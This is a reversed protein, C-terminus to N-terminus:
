VEPRREGHPRGRPPEEGDSGFLHDAPRVTLRHGLVQEFRFRGLDEIEQQRLVHRGLHKVRHELRSRRLVSRPASRHLGRRLVRLVQDLDQGALGVLGALRLDGRLDRLDHASRLRQLLLRSSRGARRPDVLLRRSAVFRLTLSIASLALPSPCRCPRITATIPGTTSTSNGGSFRGSTLVASFTFRVSPSTVSVIVHSTACCMPSDTTRAMARFGVSPSTRPAGTSFVPAGILTGTPFPTSPCTYLTSPSGRSTSASWIWGCSQHGIWRSGGGNSSSSGFVWINSVPILTM